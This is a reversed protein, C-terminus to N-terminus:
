KVLEISDHQVTGGIRAVDKTWSLHIRSPNGMEAGQDITLEGTMEGAHVQARALAVAASGTAPDEEVGAAPAFFRSHARREDRAFCLTGFHEELVDFDPALGTITASNAYQAVLYHKPMHVLWAREPAPLGARTLVTTDPDDDVQQNLATEVSVVDADITVEVVGVLCELRDVPKPGLFNMVWATGVMPHGAFEMEVQPTFIRVMPIERDSWDVFTTESFGLETAIAQMDETSLGIVDNVVGLHNGGIDDRTFVRLVHAPRVM